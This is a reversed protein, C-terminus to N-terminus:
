VGTEQDIKSQRDAASEINAALVVKEVDAPIENINPDLLMSQVETQFIENMAIRAREKVANEAWEQPSSAVYSLAKEEAETLIIKIEM